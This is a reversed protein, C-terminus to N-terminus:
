KLTQIYAIIADIEKDSLIGKYTPMVPQYGMVVKAQPAMMSERLYNEDVLFEGGQTCMVKTGFIGKWTPGILKSGDVTHCASCGSKTYLIAGFEAPTKGKSLDSADALWKDYEDQEVVKVATWMFSHSTGCYQTCEVPFVGTSTAEFWLSHYRNPQVDAKVRFAPIFFSHIVDSSTLLLKIPKHVPVVLTDNKAGNPYTFSWSWKKAYVQIETYYSPPVRMKLYGRVGIVFLAMVLALPILTWALELTLSHTIQTTAQQDPRKRLYKFVFVIIGLSILGFFFISIWYFLNFAPDVIAAFTSAKEPLWFTKSNDM